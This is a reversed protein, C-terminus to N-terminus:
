KLEKFKIIPKFYYTVGDVIFYYCDNEIKGNFNVIDHYFGNLLLYTIGNIKAEIIIKAPMNFKDTDIKMINTYIIEVNNNISNEGKVEYNVLIMNKM